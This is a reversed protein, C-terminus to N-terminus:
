RFRRPYARRPLIEACIFARVIEERSEFLPIHAAKPAPSTSVPATKKEKTFYAGPQIGTLPNVSEVAMPKVLGEGSLGTYSEAVTPAAAESSLRGEAPVDADASVPALPMDPVAHPPASPPYPASRREPMGAAMMYARQIDSMRTKPQPYRSKSSGPKKKAAASLASVIMILIIILVFEM